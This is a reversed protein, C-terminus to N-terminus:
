VHVGGHKHNKCCNFRTFVLKMKLMKSGHDTNKGLLYMLNNISRCLSLILSQKVTVFVRKIAKDISINTFDLM